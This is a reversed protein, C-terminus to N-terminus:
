VIPKCSDRIVLHPNILHEKPIDDNSIAKVALKVLKRGYRVYDYDVSTLRPTVVECLFTNDFSIISMDRPLIMHRESMAKMAGVATYDNIAIVATPKHNLMMLNNFCSYGSEVTYNGEQIYEDRFPLGNAGLRYIYQQIKEYTSRVNRRGGIIAIETHGLGILYETVIRISEIHDITVSYCDCGELKGSIIVPTTKSIQNIHKVYDQDPILDDSRCGIQIIADVRQERMKELNADELSNIGLANCLLATYGYENAAQECAVALAAYYPNRIDAIMIGLIKSRTDSLSRAIANPRYNYKDILKEVLVRKETSVRSNKRLVRSVTAPSVGAEKAIDYITIEKKTM